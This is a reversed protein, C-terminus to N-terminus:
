GGVWFCATRQENGNVYTELRSNEGIFIYTTARLNRADVGKATATLQAVNKSDSVTMGTEDILTKTDAGTKNIELGKESFEFGTGSVKSVGEAEIKTEFSILANDAEIKFNSVQTTLAKIEESNAGTSDKLEIVSKETKSATMEISDTDLKLQAYKDDVEDAKQALLTIEQNVKDVRATTQNIVDGLSTPNTETETDNEDYAWSMTQTLQGDFSITDALLYSVIPTEKKTILKFKDGIELLYNGLWECNFQEIATGEVIAQASDVLSGIDTRMNWFPNDRIYQTEGEFSFEPPELNEGLETTHVIGALQRLGDATLSLYQNRNIEAIPEEDKPLRKFFLNWNSDIYYITQTAEAAADLAVRLSETGGFNAGTPYYTDFASAAEEDIVVPLGLAAGGIEVFTKISYAAPLNLDEVTIEGAKYLADYAKITLTDEEEDVTTEVLYFVPFPYAFNGNVGFSAEVRNINLDISSDLLVATLEQCIGYGFFKGEGIRNISFDSLMDGCNCIQTLTSGNYLEVRARITQVSSQLENSHIDNILM